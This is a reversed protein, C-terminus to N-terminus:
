PMEEFAGKILYFMTQGDVTVANHMADFESLEITHTGGSFTRFTYKIQSEKKDWDEPIRGSANIVRWREYVAEFAAFSIETGNKMCRNMEETQEGDQDTAAASCSLEYLDTEGGQKCIELSSLSEMAVSVPYRALTEMPDTETLAASTFHNITYVTGDYLCYDTMENRANGTQLIVTEEEHDQVHYAGDETIHGTAGAAMHIMITYRPSDLGYNSLCTEKGEDIYMGVRLNAANKKLNSILDQDAMYKVPVTVQWNAAADSDTIKGQLTWEASVEGTHNLITIRDIRATQIEPQKVPHLLEREIMLDEMVNGAVAFLRPDGDMTMFRIDQDDLGSADGIRITIIMGNTFQVEAILMPDALGFEELRDSYEAPDESLIDEYMLHALADELRDGLTANLAWAETGELRLNGEDDRVAEWAERDRVQIRMRVIESPDRNVLSGRTDQRVPAPDDTQLEFVAFLVGALALIGAAAWAMWRRNGSQKKKKVQLM